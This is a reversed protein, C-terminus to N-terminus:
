GITNSAARGIHKTEDRALPRDVVRQLGGVEVVEVQQGGVDGVAVHVELEVVHLLPGAPEILQHRSHVL